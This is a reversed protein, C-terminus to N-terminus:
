WKWMVTIELLSSSITKNGRHAHPSPLAASHRENDSSGVASKGPAVRRLENFRASLPTM